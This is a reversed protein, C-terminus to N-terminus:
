RHKLKELEGLWPEYHRWKEVSTTYIPQRAQWRSPTAVASQNSAHNLCAEDWPLGLFDIIERILPEPNSVLEEYDVELFRDRPLVKRWHEMFRLYSEYYTVINAQNYAFNPGGAFFTMYISLCTDLPSRRIHLIKAQPFVCHILGLHRYNLPMKDTIRQAGTAEQELISLYKSSIKDIDSSDPNERWRRHIPDAEANWFPQEGASCVEPHSSIIQDLLTTGSRIMGVIFIPKPSTSGLKAMEAILEETYIGSMIESDVRTSTADFTQSAPYLRHALANAIDFYRMANQYDKARDCSKGLAYALHMRDRDDIGPRNFIALAKDVLPKGSITFSRAEALGRYAEGQFPQLEISQTLARVSDEFRGQEQLWKAYAIAMKYDVKAASRFIPEAKAPQNLHGYAVALAEALILNGPHRHLGTELTQVAEPWKSVQQYQKFVQLYNQPHEPALELAKQFAELARYVDNQLRLAMGLNFFGQSARSDVAIAALFCKEAQKAQGLQLYCIGLLNLTAPDKRDLAVARELLDIAGEYDQALKRVMGLWTLADLRQSDIQLAAELHVRAMALNNKQAAMVGALVRADPSDPQENLVLSLKRQAADVQGSEFLERAKELNRLHSDEM